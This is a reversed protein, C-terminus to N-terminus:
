LVEPAQSIIKQYWKAKVERAIPWFVRTWKPQGDDNIMVAANDYFRVYSWDKRRLEKKIRVVVARQVSKKKVTGKPSAKKVSVVIVDWVSAYRRKSGWLVKICMIEKAWSNDAVMLRTQTQIM